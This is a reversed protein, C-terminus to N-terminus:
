ASPWKGDDGGSALLVPGHIREVAIEVNDTKVRSLSNLFASRLSLPSGIVSSWLYRAAFGLDTHYPVYPLPKGGKTWAPGGPLMKATSGEWLVHSSSVGVVGCIEPYMSGVLLAAEAGRSNGIIAVAQADIDPRSQMEQIARGFYEVPIGQMTPP